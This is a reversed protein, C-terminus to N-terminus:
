PVFIEDRMLEKMAARTEHNDHDLLRQLKQINVAQGGSPASGGELHSGLAQIRRNASTNM